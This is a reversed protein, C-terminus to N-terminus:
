ARIGKDRSRGFDRTVKNETGVACSDDKVRTARPVNLLTWTAKLSMMPDWWERKDGRSVPVHYEEHMWMACRGISAEPTPTEHDRVVHTGTRGFEWDGIQRHAKAKDGKTICLDM